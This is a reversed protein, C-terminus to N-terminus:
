GVRIHRRAGESLGQIQNELDAPIKIDPKSNILLQIIELKEEETIDDQPKFTYGPHPNLGSVVM